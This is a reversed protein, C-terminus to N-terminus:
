SPREGTKKLKQQADEFESISDTFSTCERKTIDFQHDYRKLARNLGHRLIEMSSPSYFDGDQTHANFWFIGLYKDLEAETYTFFDTNEAGLHELYNKCANVAKNENKTTNPNCLNEQEQEIEEVTLRWFRNKPASAMCHHTWSKGNPPPSASGNTPHQGGVYTSKPLIVHLFSLIPDQPPRPHRHCGGQIRWHWIEEALDLWYYPAHM